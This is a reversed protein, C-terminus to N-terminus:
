VNKNAKAQLQLNCMQLQSRVFVHVVRRCQRYYEYDDDFYDYDAQTKASFIIIALLSFTFTPLLNSGYHLHVLLRLGSTCPWLRAAAKM